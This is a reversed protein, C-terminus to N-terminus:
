GKLEQGGIMQEAHGIMQKFVPSGDYPHEHYALDRNYASPYSNYYPRLSPAAAPKQSPHPDFRTM